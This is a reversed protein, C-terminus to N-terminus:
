RRATLGRGRVADNVLSTQALFDRLSRHERDCLRWLGDIASVALRVRGRTRSSTLRPPALLYVVPELCALRLTARALSPPRGDPGVLRIGVAAMGPTQGRRLTPVLAFYAFGGAVLIGGILPRSLPRGGRTRLTEDATGRAARAREWIRRVADPDGARAQRLADPESRRLERELDSEIGALRRVVEVPAYFVFGDLLWAAARRASSAARLARWRARLAPPVQRVTGRM